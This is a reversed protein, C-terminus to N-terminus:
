AEQYPDSCVYSVRHLVEEDAGVWGELDEERRRGELDGAHELGREQRADTARRSNLLLQHLRHHVATADRSPDLPHRPEIGFATITPDM